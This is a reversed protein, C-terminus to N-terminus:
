LCYLVKTFLHTLQDSKKSFGGECQVFDILWHFYFEWLAYVLSQTVVYVGLSNVLAHATLWFYWPSQPSTLFSTDGHNKRYKLRGMKDSQLACDTLAHTAVLLFLIKIM